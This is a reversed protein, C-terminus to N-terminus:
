AQVPFLTTLYVSRGAMVMGTSKPRLAIFCVFLFLLHKIGFKMCNLHTMLFIGSRMHQSINLGKRWISNKIM